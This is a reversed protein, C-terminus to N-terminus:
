RTQQFSDAWDMAARIKALRARIAARREELQPQLAELASKLRSLKERYQSVEAKRAPDLDPPLPSQQLSRGVQELANTLPTIDPIPAHAELSGSGYHALFEDLQRNAARIAEFTEAPPLENM